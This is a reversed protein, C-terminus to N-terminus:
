SSIRNAQYSQWRLSHEAARRCASGLHCRCNCRHLKEMHVSSLEASIKKETSTSTYARLSVQKNGVNVAKDGLLPPSLAIPLVSPVGFPLSHPLSSTSLAPGPLPGPLLNRASCPALSLGVHPLVTSRPATHAVSGGGEGRATGGPPLM